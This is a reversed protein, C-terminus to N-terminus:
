LKPIQANVLQRQGIKFRGSFTYNKKFAESNLYTVVMHLDIGNKPKLMILNGGFYQIKDIFAVRNNRTLNHIYICEQPTDSEMAHTNRLAGWQYWNTQNFSKIRRSLLQTKNALLHDDILKDGSPYEKILIYSDLKNYGTLVQINGISVKFVKELGSVIGVYANFHIGIAEMGELDDVFLLIGNINSIYKHENNYSCVHELSRTKQYRFILVDISAGLFLNEDHPHYIDTFTGNAHLLDITPGASTLKFFDSPIVFILEGDEELLQYCKAIFDIYLNGSKTKVYPPNGIITKYTNTCPYELFDHYIVQSQDITPLLKINTDLEIMDFQTTMNQSIYEVLDGQGISPELICDPSNKIFEMVKCKLSLNTTFYQGLAHNPVAM